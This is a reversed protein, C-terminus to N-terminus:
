KQGGESRNAGADCPLTFLFTTGEGQRSECWIAGGHRAVIKRCTSLGLGTGEYKSPGHLRKFPEFVARYDKEAIGIGNDKVSFLWEKSDKGRASIHIRPIPAECYKLGNGIVNQLLQIIQATNGYVTPLPDHTVCACREHIAQQLDSLTEELAHCMNVPEFPVDAGARTYQRLTAVLTDMRKAAAIAWECYKVIMETDGDRIGEEIYSAFTQISSSPARLDHVLVDAFRELEEQQEDVKRRLLTKEVANQISRRMGEPTIDSKKIYDAAGRKMAETAVWENGQGSSMVIAMYPFRECMTAIGALGDQGPLQYDVIACDFARQECAELAEEMSMTDVCNGVIGSGKLIRRIQRADGEDDDVLLINLTDTKM